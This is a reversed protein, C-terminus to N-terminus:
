KKVWELLKDGITKGAEEFAKRAANEYSTHGGKQKLEEQYVTKQTQKKVLEVEVDAYCFVIDSPNGHKRATANLKLIFDAQSADGTFSCGNKSLVQTGNLFIDLCKIKLPKRLLM